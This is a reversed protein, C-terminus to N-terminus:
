WRVIRERYEDEDEAPHFDIDEKMREPTLTERGDKHIIIARQYPILPPVKERAFIKGDAFSTGAFYLLLIAAFRLRNM